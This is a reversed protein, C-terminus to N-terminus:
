LNFSSNQLTYSLSKLCVFGKLVPKYSNEATLTPWVQTNMQFEKVHKREMTIEVPKILNAPQMKGKSCMTFQKQCSNEKLTKESHEIAQTQNPDESVATICIVNSDVPM